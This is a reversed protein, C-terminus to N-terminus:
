GHGLHGVGRHRDQQGVGVAGHVAHGGHGVDTIPRQHHRAGRRAALVGRGLGDVGHHDVVGLRQARQCREQRLPHTAVPEPELHPDVERLRDGISRDRARRGRGVPGLGVVRDHVVDRTRAPHHHEGPGTDHLAPRHARQARQRRGTATLPTACQAVPPRKSLAAASM